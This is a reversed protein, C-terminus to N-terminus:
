TSLVFKCVPTSDCDSAQKKAPPSISDRTPITASTSSTACVSVAVPTTTIADGPPLSHISAAVDAFFMGENFEFEVNVVMKRNRLVDFYARCNKGKGEAESTASAARTSRSGFFRELKPQNKDKSKNKNPKSM